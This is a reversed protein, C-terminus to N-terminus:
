AENNMNWICVSAHSYKEKDLNVESNKVESNQQGKLSDLQQSAQSRDFFLHTFRSMMSENHSNNSTNSSHLTNM